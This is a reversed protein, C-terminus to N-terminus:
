DPNERARRRVAVEIKQAILIIIKKKIRWGRACVGYM